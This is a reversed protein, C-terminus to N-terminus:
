LESFKCYPVAINNKRKYSNYFKNPSYYFMLFLKLSKKVVNQRVSICYQVNVLLISGSPYIFM